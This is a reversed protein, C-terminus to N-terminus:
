KDSSNAKELILKGIENLIEVNLNKSNYQEIYKEIMKKDDNLVFKIEEFKKKDKKEEKKSTFKKFQLSQPSFNEKLYNANEKAEPSSLDESLICVFNNEIVEKELEKINEQYVYIHKPSFHNVIYKRKCTETDFVIVHKEEGAEGFSLELPSGIYEVNKGIKQAKHYHGFFAYKYNAFLNESVKVMEGDHEVIVDSIQGGSNLVAGDISIHGILYRKDIGKKNFKNLSEIPDHTFPLFDWLSGEIELTQPKGIVKVGKLSEFPYVGSIDTKENFWIDHNGLLLYLDFEQNNKLVNYINQYVCSDIKQREHLLDGGFIISKINNERATEFIWEFAKICDDLREYSKKHNHVHIDSFLLIKAM